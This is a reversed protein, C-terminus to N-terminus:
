NGFMGKLSDLMGGGEGQKKNGTFQSLLGGLDLGGAGGGGTLHGLIDKLNFSSDNDDNTKHVLKGLIMPIISSAINGAQSSNLGFKQMLSEILNTQIGQTVPSGTVSQGNFLGALDSINGSAVANKLGDMISHTATNIAEDNRENPIDPNNIIADGAQEKVLNMLNEFMAKRKTTFSLLQLWNKM